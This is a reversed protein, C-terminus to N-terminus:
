QDRADRQDRSQGSRGATEFEAWVCTHDNVTVGWRTTLRDVVLLGWGGDERPVPVIDPDLGPGPQCVTLTITTDAVEVDVVLRQDPSSLGYRIGNTVLETLVVLVDSLLSRPL